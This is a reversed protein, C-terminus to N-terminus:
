EDTVYVISYNFGSTPYATGCQAIIQKGSVDTKDLLFTAEAAVDLTARIADADGTYGVDLTGGTNTSLPRIIITEAICNQPLIDSLILTDTATTPIVVGSIIQGNGRYESKRVQTETALTTVIDAKVTAM